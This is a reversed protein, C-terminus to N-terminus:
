KEEADAGPVPPMEGGAQIVDTGQQSVDITVVVGGEVAASGKFTVSMTGGGAHLGAALPKRGSAELALVGGETWPVATGGAPLGVTQLKFDIGLTAVEGEVAKLTLKASSKAEDFQLGNSGFTKQVLEFAPSWSQGVAIPGPPLFLHENQASKAAGKGHEEDLWATAAPSVTAGPTLVKATRASPPGILAVHVGTLSSDKQGGVTREWSKFWVLADTYKGAADVARCELVAEYSVSEDSQQDQLVTGDPAKVTQRQVKKSTEARSVVDGVKWTEHEPITYAKEGEALVPRAALVLAAASLALLRRM